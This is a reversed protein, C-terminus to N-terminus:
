PATPRRRRTFGGSPFAGDSWNRGAEVTSAGVRRRQAHQYSVFPSAGRGGAEPRAPVVRLAVRGATARAVRARRRGVAARRPRLRAAGRVRERVLRAGGRRAELVAVVRSDGGRGADRM